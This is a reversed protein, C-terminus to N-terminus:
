DMNTFPAGQSNHHWISGWHKTSDNTLVTLSSCFPWCKASLMKLNMEQIFINYKMCIENFRIGSPGVSLRDVNTWTIAQGRLPSLGNGSTSGIIFISWSTKHWVADTPWLSNVSLVITKQRGAGSRNVLGISLALEFYPLLNWYFKFEIVFNETM